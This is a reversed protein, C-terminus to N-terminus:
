RVCHVDDGEVNGGSVGLLNGAVAQHCLRNGCICLLATCARQFHSFWGGM